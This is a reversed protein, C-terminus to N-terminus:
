EEVEPEPDPPPVTGGPGAMILIYSNDDRDFVAEAGTDPDLFPVTVVNTKQEAWWYRDDLMKSCLTEQRDLLADCNKIGSAFSQLVDESMTVITQNNKDAVVDDIYYFREFEPIYAYTYAIYNGQFRIKPAMVSQEYFLEGEVLTQDTWTKGIIDKDSQLKMLYVGFKGAASPTYSPTSNGSEFRVGNLLWNEIEERETGYCTISDLHVKMCKTYGTCDGLSVVKLSTRGLFGDQGDDKKRRPSEIILYATQDSMLGAMSGGGTSYQIAPSMSMVQNLTKAGARMGTSASSGTTDAPEVPDSPKKKKANAANAAEAADIAAGVAGAYTCLSTGITAGATIAGTYMGSYNGSSTPIMYGASGTFFYRPHDDVDIEAVCNGSFFDFMYKLTLTKGICDSVNLEHSGVYPLFAVIKTYPSYDCFDKFQQKIPLKGFTITKFGDTLRYANIEAPIYVNGANIISPSDDVDPPIPMIMLGVIVDAPDNMFKNLNDLFNMSWMYEALDQLAENGIEYMTVFGTDQPSKEPQTLGTIPIDIWPDTSGDGPDDEIEEPSDLDIGFTLFTFMHHMSEEYNAASSVPSYLIAYNIVGGVNQEYCKFYKGCGNEWDIVFGISTIPALQQTITDYWEVTSGVAFGLYYDGNSDRKAVIRNGPATELINVTENPIGSLFEPIKTSVYNVKDRSVVQNDADELADADIETFHYTGQLTNLRPVCEWVHTPVIHGGYLQYLLARGNSDIYTERTLICFWGAGGKWLSAICLAGQQIEQNWLYLVKSINGDTGNGYGRNAAVNSNNLKCWIEPAGGNTSKYSGSTSDGFLYTNDALSNLDVGGSFKSQFMLLAAARDDGAFYTWDSGPTFITFDLLYAQYNPAVNANEWAM